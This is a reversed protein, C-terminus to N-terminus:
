DGAPHGAAHREPVAVVRGAGDVEAAEYLERDVSQLAALFFVMGWGISLWLSALIIAVGRM